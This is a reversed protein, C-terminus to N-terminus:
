DVFTYMTYTNYVPKKIKGRCVKVGQLYRTSVEFTKGDATTVTTTDPLPNGQEDAYYTGTFEIEVPHETDKVEQSKLIGQKVLSQVAATIEGTLSLAEFNRVSYGYYKHKLHYAGNPMMEEGIQMVTFPTHSEKRAFIHDFIPIYRKVMEQAKQVAKFKIAYNRMNEM